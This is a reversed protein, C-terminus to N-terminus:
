SIFDPIMRMRPLIYRHYIKLAVYVSRMIRLFLPLKHAIIARATPSVEVVLPRQENSPLLVGWPDDLGAGHGALDGRRRLGACHGAPIWGRYTRGVHEVSVGVHHLACRTGGDIGRAAGMIGGLGTQMVPIKSIVIVSKGKVPSMSEGFGKKM